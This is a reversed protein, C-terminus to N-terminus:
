VADSRAGTAGSPRGRGRGRGGRRRRPAGGPARAADGLPTSSGDDPKLNGISDNVDEEPESREGAAPAANAGSGNGAPKGGRGRGRRRPRRRPGGAVPAAKAPEQSGSDEDGEFTQMEPEPTENPLAAARGMQPPPSASGVQPLTPMPIGQVALEGHAGLHSSAYVETGEEAMAGVRKFPSVPRRPPDPKLEIDPDIIRHASNFQVVGFEKGSPIGPSIMRGVRPGEDETPRGRTEAPGSRAVLPRSRNASPRGAPRREHRAEPEAAFTLDQSASAGDETTEELEDVYLGESPQAQPEVQEQFDESALDEEASEEHESAV